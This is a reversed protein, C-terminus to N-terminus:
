LEKDTELIEDSHYATDDLIININPLAEAWERPNFYKKWFASPRDGPSESVSSNADDKSADQNSLRKLVKKIENINKKLKNAKKQKKNTYRFEPVQYKRKGKNPKSSSEQDSSSSSSESR